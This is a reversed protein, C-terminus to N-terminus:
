RMVDYFFLFTMYLLGSLGVQLAHAALKFVLESEVEIDGQPYVLLRWKLFENQIVKLYTSHIIIIQFWIWWTLKKIYHPFTSCFCFCYKYTINRGCADIQKPSIAQSMFLLETICLYNLFIKYQKWLYFTWWTYSITVLGFAKISGNVM